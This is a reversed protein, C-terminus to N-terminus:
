RPDPPRRRHLDIRRSRDRRHRPRRPRTRGAGRGRPHPLAPIISRDVVFDVTGGPGTTARDIEGDDRDLLAFRAGAVGFNPDSSTKVVRIYALVHTATSPPPRCRQDDDRLTVNNQARLDDGLLRLRFVATQTTFAASWLGPEDVDATFRAIGNSDTLAVDERSASTDFSPWGALAANREVTAGDPDSTPQPILDINTQRDPWVPLHPLPRGSPDTVRVLLDEPSGPTTPPSGDAAEVTVIPNGGIPTTVEAIEVM